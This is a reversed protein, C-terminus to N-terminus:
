GTSCAFSLNSACRRTPASSNIVGGGTNRWRIDGEIERDIYVMDVGQEVAPPLAIPELPQFQAGNAPTAVALAVVVLPLVYGVIKM